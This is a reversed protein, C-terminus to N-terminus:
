IWMLYLTLKQCFTEELLKYDSIDRTVSFTFRVCLMERTVSAEKESKEHQKM